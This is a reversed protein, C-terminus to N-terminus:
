VVKFIHAFFFPIRAQTGNKKAIFLLKISRLFPMPAMVLPNVKMLHCLANTTACLDNCYGSFYVNKRGLRAVLKDGAEKIACKGVVLVRGQIADICEPTHGKGMLITFGGKGHYDYALCQLLTLPNNQCGERCTRETGKIITVDQPYKPYLDWGYSKDFDAIDGIIAVDDLSKVGMGHGREVAIQLHHADKEPTLGFLKAGVLDAALVHTSGILVKFPLVCKDAFATVPYHGHITAEVGEILTFDPRIFDLMDALKSALNYNHDARRDAPQPFAWQNKVGLTVGAMSHTKLKPLNIYLNEDARDILNETVFKPIRFTTEAYGGEESAEPRKGRFTFQTNEEEDLYVERVGYKKCVDSYGTLAFVMRTFNSQTCNEFLFIRNAGKSRWYHIVAEVLEVRTHSYPKSDIANPKIYVDGSSKLLAKGGAAEFIEAVASFIEDKMTSSLPKYQTFSESQHPSQLRKVTVSAAKASM